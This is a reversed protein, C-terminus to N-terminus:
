ECWYSESTKLVEIDDDDSVVLSLKTEHQRYEKDTPSYNLESVVKMDTSKLENDFSIEADSLNSFEKKETNLVPAFSETESWSLTYKKM